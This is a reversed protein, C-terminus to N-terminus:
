ERLRNAVQNPLGMPNCSNHTGSICAGIGSSAGKANQGSVSNLDFPICTDPLGMYPFSFLPNGTCETTPSSAGNFVTVSLLGNSCTDMATFRGADTWDQCINTAKPWFFAVTPKGKCSGNAYIKALAGSTQFTPFVDHRNYTTFTGDGGAYAVKTSIQSESPGDYVIKCDADVYDTSTFTIVGNVQSVFNHITYMADITSNFFQCSGTSFVVVQMAASGAGEGYEAKTTIVLYGGINKKPPTATAAATVAKATATVTEAIAAAPKKPVVYAHKRITNRIRQL